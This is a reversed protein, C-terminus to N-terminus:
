AGAPIFAVAFVTSTCDSSVWSDPGCENVPRICTTSQVISSNYHGLYISSRGSM